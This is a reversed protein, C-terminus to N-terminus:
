NFHSRTQTKETNVCVWLSNIGIIKKENLFVEFDRISKIGALTEIWTEMEITEHWQPLNEVEIRMSSLVWAQHNKQMDFYSMGGLDSHKGALAQLINMLDTFRIKSNVSCKDITVHCTGKFISSFKNPLQM